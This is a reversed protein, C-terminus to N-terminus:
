RIEVKHLDAEVRVRCVGRPVWERVGGPKEHYRVRATGALYKLKLIM